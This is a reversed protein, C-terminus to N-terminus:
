SRAKLGFTDTIDDNTVSPLHLRQWRSMVSSDGPRSDPYRHKVSTIVNEERDVDDYSVSLSHWDTSLGEDAVKVLIKIKDEVERIVADLITQAEFVIQALDRQMVYMAICQNSVVIIARNKSKQLHYVSDVTLDFTITSSHEIADALTARFVLVTDHCAISFYSEFNDIRKLELLQIGKAIVKRFTSSYQRSIYRINRAKFPITFLLLKPISYGLITLDNRVLGAVVVIDVGGIDLWQALYSLAGYTVLNIASGPEDHIGDTLWNLSAMPTGNRIYKAETSKISGVGLSNYVELSFGFLEENPSFDLLWKGSQSWLLEPSCLRSSSEKTLEFAYLLDSESGDNYFNYVVPNLSFGLVQEGVLSWIRNDLSSKAIISSNPVPTDITWLVTTCDLSYLKAHLYSGTFLLVQKCNVYAGESANEEVPPIWQFKAVGLERTQRIIIPISSERVDYILLMAYQEVLIAIKTAKTKPLCSEWEIQTIRPIQNLFSHRDRIGIHDSIDRQIDISHPSTTQKGNSPNIHITLTRLNCFAIMSGCPSPISVVKSTSFSM